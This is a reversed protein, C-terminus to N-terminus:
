DLPEDEYDSPLAETNNMKKNKYYDDWERTAHADAGGHTTIRERIKILVPTNIAEGAIIAQGKTLGPLESIIDDSVSELSERINSQDVPNIIKMIIQTMCQSLVDPDLKGPRQSIIGIGVGFKRGESLITKLIPKCWTNENSPAFKHGEELIIFVPYELLDRDKEPELKKDMNQSNEARKVKYRSKLVRNLIISVIMEKDEDSIDSIDMITVMGPKFIDQLRIHRSDNIFSKSKIFENLRWKLAFKTTKYEDGAGEIAEIFSEITPPSQKSDKKENFIQRLLNIMKDTPNKLLGRIENFELESFKIYIDDSQLYKVKPRYSGNVFESRTELEVLTNYEGHPDFILVSGKNNHKMMEEVLVGIAYSKGSGTSALVALHTSVIKDVDVVVPIRESERNLLYGLLASAIDGEKKPNLWEILDDKLALYIPTGPRPPIRPNVFKFRPDKYYGIIQAHILYSKLNKTDLDIFSSIAEPDLKPESLMIDPYLRLPTRANIRCLVKHTINLEDTYEYYIFEGIKAKEEDPTIFEFEYSSRGPGRARGLLIPHNNEDKGMNDKVAMDENVKM